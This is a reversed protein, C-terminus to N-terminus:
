CCLPRCFFFLNLGEPGQGPEAFAAVALMLLGVAAREAFLYTGCAECQFFEEPM